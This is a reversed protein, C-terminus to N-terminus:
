RQSQTGWEFKPVSELRMACSLPAQVRGNPAYAGSYQYAGAVGSYTWSALVTIIYQWNHTGATGLWSPQQTLITRLSGLPNGKLLM